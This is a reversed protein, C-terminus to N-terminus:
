NEDARLFGMRLHEVAGMRVVLSGGELTQRDLVLTTRGYLESSFPDRDWVSIVVEDGPHVNIVPVDAFRVSKSSTTITSSSGALQSRMASATTRIQVIQAGLASILGELERRRQLEDDTLPAHWELLQLEPCKACRACTWFDLGAPCDACIKGSGACFGSVDLRLTDLRERQEPTLAPGSGARRELTSREGVHTDLRSELERRLRMSADRRAELGADLRRVHVYLDPRPEDQDVHHSVRMDSFSLAYTAAVADEVANADCSLGAVALALYLSSVSRAVKSSVALSGRQIRNRVM